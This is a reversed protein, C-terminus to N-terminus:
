DNWANNLDKNNKQIADAYAEQARDRNYNSNNRNQNKWARKLSDKRDYKRRNNEQDLRSLYSKSFFAFENQQDSNIIQLRSKSVKLQKANSIQQQSQSQNVDYQYSIQWRQSFEFNRQRSYQSDYQDFKLQFYTSFQEYNNLSYRTSISKFNYNVYSKESEYIFKNRRILTWWIKKKDDLSQLFDHINIFLDSMSINRQLEVNLENYILMVLHANSKLEISKTTRIIIDVYERSKRCQRANKLIYRERTITIMTVTSRERFRKMLYREWVNLNNRTKILKKVEDSLEITYWTMTMERLCTYLNNKVADYDKIVAFNRVRDIFLHINRFFIDKDAHQISEVTTLIKEDYTSDFFRLNAAVWRNSKQDFAQAVIFTTSSAFTASRQAWFKQMMIMLERRQTDIFDQSMNDSSSSNSVFASEIASINRSIEYKVTIRITQKDSESTTFKSSFQSTFIFKSNLTFEAFQTQSVSNSQLVFQLIFVQRASNV